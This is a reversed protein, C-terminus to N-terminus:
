KRPPVTAQIYKAQSNFMQTRRIMIMNHLQLTNEISITTSFHRRTGDSDQLPSSESCWLTSHESHSVNLGTLFPNTWCCLLDFDCHYAPKKFLLLIDLIGLTNWAGFKDYFATDNATHYLIFQIRTDISPGSPVLITYRVTM